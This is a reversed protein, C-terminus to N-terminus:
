LKHTVQKSYSIILARSPETDSVSKWLVGQVKDSILLVLRTGQQITTLPVQLLVIFGPLHELIWSDPNM